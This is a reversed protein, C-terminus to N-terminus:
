TSLRMILEKIAIDESGIKKTKNLIVDLLFMNTRVNDVLSSQIIAIIMIPSLIFFDKIKSILHFIINVM